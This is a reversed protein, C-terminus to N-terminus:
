LSSMWKNRCPSIRTCCVHTHLCSNKYLILATLSSTWYCASEFAQCPKSICFDNGNSPVAQKTEEEKKQSFMVVSTNITFLDIRIKWPKAVGIRSIGNIGRVLTLWVTYFSHQIFEWVQDVKNTWIQDIKNTWIQDVKNTWVPQTISQSYIERDWISEDRAARMSDRSMSTDRMSDKPMSTNTVENNIAHRSEVM